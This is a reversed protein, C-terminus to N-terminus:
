DIRLHYRQNKYRFLTTCKLEKQFYNSMKSYRTFGIERAIYIWSLGPIDDEASKFTLKVIKAQSESLVYRNENITIVSFDKNASFKGLTHHNDLPNGEIPYGNDNYWNRFQEYTNVLYDRQTKRKSGDPHQSLYKEVQKIAESLSLVQRDNREKCTEVTKNGLPFTESALYHNLRHNIDFNIATIELKDEGDKKIIDYICYPGQFKM